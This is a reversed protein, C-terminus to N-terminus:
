ETNNDNEKIIKKITQRLMFSRSREQEKAIEDLKEIDKMEAFFGLRQKM